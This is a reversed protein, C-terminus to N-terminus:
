VPSLSIVEWFTEVTAFQNVRTNEATNVVSGFIGSSMYLIIFPISGMEQEVQGSVTMQGLMNLLYHVIGTHLFIATVFRLASFHHHTDEGHGQPQHNGSHSIQHRMMFDALDM